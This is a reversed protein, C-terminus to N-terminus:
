GSGKMSASSENINENILPLAPVTEAFIKSV